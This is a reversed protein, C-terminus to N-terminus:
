VIETESKGSVVAMQYRPLLNVLSAELGSEGNVKFYLADVRRDYHSTEYVGWAGFTMFYDGPGLWITVDVKVELIDGMRLEPTRMKQLLPNIAFLRVGQVTTVSIGVNLDDIKERNCRVKCLFSYARGSDLQTTKKGLEDLIGFDVITAGQNGYQYEASESTIPVADSKRTDEQQGLLDKLYLGTVVKPTGTCRIEGQRLYVARDCITNISETNHSVFVITCGKNRFEEFKNFCKRQFKVDGVSLAEDVILIEPDVAVATSFALRAQMGTSYTKLPQEMFANLESFDVIWDMKRDIEEQSMGLCLGGMYVNERGSYESHFGTGLELISSIRGNIEVQGNTKELTGTLIKLLTSKGAGNPGVMGVVEGKYFEFNIDRLAWFDRHRPRRTIIERLLDSPAAYIEFKKSLNMVRISSDAGAKNM